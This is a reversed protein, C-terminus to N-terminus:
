ISKTLIKDHLLIFSLSDLLILFKLSITESEFGTFNGHLIGHRNIISRPDHIKGSYKWFSGQELYHFIVELIKRHFMLVKRSFVLERLIKVYDIFDGKPNKGCKVLYDRIIGEFQPVIIYISAIYDKKFHAGLARKLYSLRDPFFNAKEWFAFRKNWYTIGYTNSVIDLFTSRNILTPDKHLELLVRPYYGPAPIWNNYSLMKLKEIPKVTKEFRSIQIFDSIPYHHKIKALEEESIGVFNPHCDFFLFYDFLFFQCLFYASNKGDHIPPRIFCEEPYIDNLTLQEDPSVSRKLKIEVTLNIEQNLEVIPLVTGDPLVKQIARFQYLELPLTSEKVKGEKIRKEIEPLIFIELLHAITRFEIM